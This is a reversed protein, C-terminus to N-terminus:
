WRGGRSRVWCSREGCKWRPASGDRGDAWRSLRRLLARFPAAAKGVFKKVGRGKWKGFAEKRITPAGRLDSSASYACRGKPVPPVLDGRGWSDHLVAPPLPAGKARRVLRVGGAKWRAREGPQARRYLKDPAPAGSTQFAVSNELSGM